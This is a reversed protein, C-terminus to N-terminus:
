ILGSEMVYTQQSINTVQIVSLWNTIGNPDTNERLDILDLKLLMENPDMSPYLNQEQIIKEQIRELYLTLKMELERKGTLNNQPLTKIDTGFDPSYLDTTIRNLLNDKVIEALFEIGTQTSDMIYGDETIYLDSM